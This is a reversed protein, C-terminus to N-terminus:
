TIAGKRQPQHDRQVDPAMPRRSLDLLAQDRPPAIEYGPRSPERFTLADYYDDLPIFVGHDQAWVRMGRSCSHEWSLVEVRWGRGHMRELTSHFGRGHGYGAGDGTLLVVVGPDGNHDLGDELMRLQLWQDPVGQEGQDRTGRNFLHVEVGRNEM